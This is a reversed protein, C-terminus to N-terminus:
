RLHSDWKFTQLLLGDTM